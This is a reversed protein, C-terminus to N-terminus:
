MLDITFSFWDSWASKNNETDTARVKWRFEYGCEVPISIQKDIVNTFSKYSKWTGGVNRQVVVDYGHIGSDDSVPLWALTQNAKCAAHLGNAPVMPSPVPPPTTDATNVTITMTEEASERGREARVLYTHTTTPCVSQSGTLAVADGEFFMSEANDSWWSLTACEGLNVTSRDGVLKLHIPELPTLTLTPTLTFTPTYTATPTFTAPPTPTLTPTSTMRPTLTIPRGIKVRSTASARETGKADYVTLILVYDGEKEPTWQFQFDSFTAKEQAPKQQDLLTSNVGLTVYGIGDVLAAHAQITIPKIEEISTGDQPFNIWARPSYQSPGCAVLISAIILAICIWYPTRHSPNTRM